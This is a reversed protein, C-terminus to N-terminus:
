QIRQIRDEATLRQELARLRASEEANGAAAHAGALLSLVEPTEELLRSRELQQVAEAARKARLLAVGLDRHSRASGDAQVAETLVRLADEIEGAILHRSGERRLADALFAKQGEATAESQRKEFIAMQSRAEDAKGLRALATALGYRAEMLTGDLAIAREFAEAADQWSTARAYAQGIAAHARADSADLWAATSLELLAEDNRGRIFYVEGLQRHAEASNPNVDIRRRYASIAGDFDAQELLLGGTLRYFFDRGVVPGYRSALQLQESAQPLLARRQYLRALLYHARGSVLGAAFAETLEREAEAARGDEALVRALAVRSRADLPALRAAARLHAIANGTDGGIWYVLGMLRQIESDDPAVTAAGALEDRAARIQGTRLLGIAKVRRGRVETTGSLLPDSAAAARLRALAQRYDGTALAAFGEAYRGEAFIPAVGGAQRLLDIRQFPGAAPADRKLPGAARLARRFDQWAKRGAADADAGAPPPAQALVYLVTPDNPDLEAATRWAAAADVTRGALQYAHAALVFVDPREPSRRVAAQVSTIADAVLHRDLLVTAIVLPLDPSDEQRAAARARFADIAADWKTLAADMGGLARELEAGEDGFAGAQARIFQQLADVFALKLSFLIAADNRFESRPPEV